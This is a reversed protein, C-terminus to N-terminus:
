ALTQNLQGFSAPTAVLSVSALDVLRDEAKSVIKQAIVLIDGPEPSLAQRATASVILAVLDDGATVRPLHEVATLTLTAPM